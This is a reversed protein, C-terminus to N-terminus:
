SNKGQNKSKVIEHRESEHAYTELHKTNQKTTIIKGM